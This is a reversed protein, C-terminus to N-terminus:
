IELEWELWAYLKGVRLEVSTFVITRRVSNGPVEADATVTAGVREWSDIDVCLVQKPKTPQPLSKIVKALKNILIKM